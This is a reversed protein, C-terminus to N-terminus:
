PRRAQPSRSPRGIARRRWGPVTWSRPPGRPPSAAEHLAEYPVHRRASRRSGHGSRPARPMGVSRRRPCCPRRASRALPAAPASSCPSLRRRPPSCYNGPGQRPSHGPSM